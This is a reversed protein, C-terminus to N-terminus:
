IFSCSGNAITLSLSILIGVPHGVTLHVNGRQELPNETFNEPNDLPNEAFNGHNELSGYM